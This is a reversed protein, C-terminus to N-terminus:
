GQLILISRYLLTPAVKLNCLSQAKRSDIKLNVFFFIHNLYLSLKATFLHLIFLFFQLVREPKIMYFLILEKDNQPLAAYCQCGKM